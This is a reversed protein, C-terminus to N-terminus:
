ALITAIDGRFPPVGTLLEWLTAGLGYVDSRVGVQATEGRAQEPAMYAPTGMVTGHLTRPHLDQTVATPPETAGEEGAIGFDLVQVEGFEGVMVNDPKLDRHVVGRSHAFAVADCIKLFVELRERRGDLTGSAMAATLSQGRVVRMTLM